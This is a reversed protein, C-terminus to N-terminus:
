SPCCGPSALCTRSASMRQLSVLTASNSLNPILNISRVPVKQPFAANSRKRLADFHDYVSKKSTLGHIHLDKLLTFTLATEPQEITAPFLQAAMLQLADTKAPTCHCYKVSIRHVGNTHVVTTMRGPTLLRNPCPNGEHGLSLSMGAAALSTRSFFTGNWVQIHHFPLHSHANAVCLGCLVQPQFCDECRYIKARGEGCCEMGTTDSFETALIASQLQNFHPSFERMMVSAGQSYYSPIRTIPSASSTGTPM